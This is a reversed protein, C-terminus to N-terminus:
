TIGRLHQSGAGPGPKFCLSGTEGPKPPQLGLDRCPHAQNRRLGRSLHGPEWLRQCHGAIRLAGRSYPRRVDRQSQKVKVRKEVHTQM